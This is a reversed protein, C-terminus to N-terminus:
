PDAALGTELMDRVARTAARHEHAVGLSALAPLESRYRNVMADFASIVGEPTPPRRRQRLERVALQVVAAESGPRVYALEKSPGLLNVARRRAETIVWGQYLRFGHASVRDDIEGVFATLIAGLADDLQRESDALSPRAIATEPSLSGNVLLLLLWGVSLPHLREGSGELLGVVGSLKATSWRRYHTYAVFRAEGVEEPDIVVLQDAPDIERLRRALVDLAILGEPTILLNQGAGLVLPERLLRATPKDGTALNSLRRRLAAGTRAPDFLAGMARLDDALTTRRPLQQEALLRLAEVIETADSRTLVLSLGFFTAPSDRV